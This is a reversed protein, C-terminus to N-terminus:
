EKGNRWQDMVIWLSKWKEVLVRNLECVEDLSNRNAKGKCPSFGKHSTIGDRKKKHTEECTVRYM